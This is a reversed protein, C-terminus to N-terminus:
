NKETIKDDLMKNQHFIDDRLRSFDEYIENKIQAVHGKLDDMNVKQGM